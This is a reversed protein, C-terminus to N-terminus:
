DAGGESWYSASGLHQALATLERYLCGPYRNCWAGVVVRDGAALAWIRRHPIGFSLLVGFGALLLGLEVGPLGVDRHVRLGSTFVQHTEPVQFRVPTHTDSELEPLLVFLWQRFPTGGRPTIELLFSPNQVRSSRTEPKGGADLGFDPYYEQIAIVYDGVLFNRDPQMLDLEFSGIPAGTRRDAVVVRAKGLEQQFSTQFIQMQRYSLPHNVAVQSRLIEAGGDIVTVATRLSRPTGDPYSALLLQENRVYWSTNPVKAIDGDRVWILQDFYFGPIARTLAGMLVLLVGLHTIYPGWRGWRGRDAVLRGDTDIVRYRRDRLARSLAALPLEGRPVPYSFGHALRRVFAAPPAPNPRQLTHWLPVLRELSGVVLSAGLMLLLTLYWWSTYLQTLGWRLLFSGLALGYREPYYSDPPQWSSYAGEQEILTGVASALGILGIIVAAVRVSAFFDWTQELIGRDQTALSAPAGAPLTAPAAAAPAAAPAPGVPAAAGLDM